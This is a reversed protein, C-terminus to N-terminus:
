LGAARMFRGMDFRPNTTSLHEAIAVTVSSMTDRDYIDSQTNRLNLIRAIAEFDRRTM